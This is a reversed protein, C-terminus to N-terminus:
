CKTNKGKKKLIQMLKKYANTKKIVLENENKNM